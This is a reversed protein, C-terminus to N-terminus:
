KVTNSHGIKIDILLLTDVATLDLGTVGSVKSEKLMCAGCRLSLVVRGHVVRAMHQVYAGGDQRIRLIIRM